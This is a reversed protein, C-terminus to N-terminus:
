LLALLNCSGLTLARWLGPLTQSAADQPQAHSAAQRPQLAVPKGLCGNLWPNHTGAGSRDTTHTCSSTPASTGTSPLPSNM